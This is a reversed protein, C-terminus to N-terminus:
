ETLIKTIIHKSYPEFSIESSGIRSRVRDDIEYESLANNTICVICMMLGKEEVHEELVLLKDSLILPKGRKDHFLIDSEDLVM